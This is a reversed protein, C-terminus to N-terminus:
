WQIVPRTSSTILTLPWRMPVASNSAATVVDLLDRLRGDDPVRVIL